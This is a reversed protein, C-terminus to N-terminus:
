TSVALLRARSRGWLRCRVEGTLEDIAEARFGRKFGLLPTESSKPAPSWPATPLAAAGPPPAPCGGVAQGMHRGRPPERTGGKRLSRLDPKRLSPLCEFPLVPRPPSPSLGLRPCGCSARFTVAPFPAHSARPWSRLLLLPVCAAARVRAAGRDRM